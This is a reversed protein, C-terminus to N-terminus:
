RPGPDIRWIGWQSAGEGSSSQPDGLAAIFQIPIQTFELTSMKLKGKQIVTWEKNIWVKTINVKYSKKSQKTQFIVEFCILLYTDTESTYIAKQIRPASLLTLPM